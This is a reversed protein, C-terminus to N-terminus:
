DDAIVEWDCPPVEHMLVCGTEPDHLKCGYDKCNKHKECYGKLIELAEKVSKNM